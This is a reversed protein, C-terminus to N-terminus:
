TLLAGEHQLLWEKRWLGGGYGILKGNSGIVRHCPLILSIPNKGNASGVARMKNPDGMMRALQGYTLTRGFPIDALKQWVKKQFETGQPELPVDFRTLEKKFYAEVQAIAKDLIPNAETPGVPRDDRFYLGTLANESAHLHVWGIPCQYGVVWHQDDM